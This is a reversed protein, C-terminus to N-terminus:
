LHGLPVATTEVVKRMVFSSHVGTVGAIKTLKGLLFAQYADMDQVIVKLQYDATSGTILLCEKVEPYSTVAAEFGGFREPTHRDMSISIIATLTLGLQKENLVTVTKGIIKAEELAKVRRLCPSPSLGVKDALEINSIAGDHQLEALIQKDIRDLKM